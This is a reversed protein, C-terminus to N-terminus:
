FAARNPPFAPLRVMNLLRVNRRDDGWSVDGIESPERGTFVLANDPGSLLTPPPEGPLLWHPPAFLERPAACSGTAEVKSTSCRASSSGAQAGLLRGQWAGTSATSSSGPKMGEIGVTFTARSGSNAYVKVFELEADVGTLLHSFEVILSRTASRGSPPARRLGYHAPFIQIRTRRARRFCGAPSKLWNTNCRSLAPTVHGVCDNLSFNTRSIRGRGLRHHIGRSASAVSSSM